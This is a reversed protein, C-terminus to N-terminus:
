GKQKINEENRQVSVASKAYINGAIRCFPIGDNGRISASPEPNSPKLRTHRTQTSEDICDEPHYRAAAIDPACITETPFVIAGIFLFNIVNAGIKEM